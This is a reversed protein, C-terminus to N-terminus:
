ENYYRGVYNEQQVKLMHAHKWVTTIRTVLQETNGYKKSCKKRKMHSYLRGYNNSLTTTYKLKDLQEELTKNKRENMLLAHTNLITSLM